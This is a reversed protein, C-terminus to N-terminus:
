TTSTRHGSTAPRSASGISRSARPLINEMAMIELAQTYGRISLAAKLLTQVLTRQHFNLQYMPIGTRDSKPIFDWDLRGPHDM